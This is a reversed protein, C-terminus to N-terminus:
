LGESFVGSVPLCFLNLLLALAAKEALPLKFFLSSVFRGAIPASFLLNRLAAKERRALVPAGPEGPAGHASRHPSFAPFM